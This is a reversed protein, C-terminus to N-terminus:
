VFNKVPEEVIFQHEKVGLKKFQMKLSKIMSSPGCMFIYKDQL